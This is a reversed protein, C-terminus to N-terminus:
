RASSRKTKNKHPSGPKGPVGAPASVIQSDLIVEAPPFPARSRRAPEVPPSLQLLRYFEGRVLEVSRGPEGNMESVLQPLGQPPWTTLAEALASALQDGQLLNPVCRRLRGLFTEEGATPSFSPAIIVRGGALATLLGISSLDDTLVVDATSIAGVVSESPPSFCIGSRDLAEFQGRWNAGDSFRPSLFHPHPRLVFDYTERLSTAAELLVDGYRDLLNGKGWSCAILVRPKRSADGAIARGHEHIAAAIRDARLSGVVSTRSAVTPNSQKAQELRTFSSEFLCSYLVRGQPDFCANGYFYDEGNAQKKSGIGHSIRLVAHRWPTTLAPFCFHDAVVVIDWPMVNAWRLQVEPLPLLARCANWDGPHHEPRRLCLHCDLRPDNRVLEWVEALYDATLANHAAFLVRKKGKGRRFRAAFFPRLM